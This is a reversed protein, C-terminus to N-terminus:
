AQNLQVCIKFLGLHQCALSMQSGWHTAARDSGSLGINDIAGFVVLLVQHRNAFENEGLVKSVTSLSSSCMCAKPRHRAAGQMIGPEQQSIITTSASHHQFTKLFLWFTFSLLLLYVTLHLSKSYLLNFNSPLALSMTMNKTKGRMGLHVYQHGWLVMQHFGLVVAILTHPGPLFSLALAALRAYVTSQSPDASLGLM